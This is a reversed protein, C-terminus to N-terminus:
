LDMLLPDAMAGVIVAVVCIIVAFVVAGARVAPKAPARDALFLWVAHRWGHGERWADRSRTGAAALFATLWAGGLCWGGLVDSLWHVGLYVRSVGIAGGILTAAILAGWALGAGGRATAPRDRGGWRFAIYVLVGLFVLTTFAHSSPMSHSTPLAILAEAAPPRTRGAVVKAVESIGWGILLGGAVLAARARRGWVAFLLIASFSLAALVTINGILTLGWFLHSRGPSRWAIFADAIRRDWAALSSDPGSTAALWVFVALLAAALPAAAAPRRWSPARPRDRAPSGPPEAGRRM